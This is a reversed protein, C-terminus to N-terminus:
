FGHLNLLSLHMGQMFSCSFPMSQKGFSLGNKLEEMERTMMYVEEAHYKTSWNEVLRLFLTFKKLTCFIFVLCFESCFFYNTKLFLQYQSPSFQIVPVLCCFFLWSVVCIFFIASRIDAESADSCDSFLVKVAPRLEVLCNPEVAQNEICTGSFYWAKSNLLVLQLLPKRSKLDRVVTRFSVEDEASELLLNSFLNQVTYYRHLFSTRADTCPLYLPEPCLHYVMFGQSVFSKENFFLFFFIKPIACTLHARIIM